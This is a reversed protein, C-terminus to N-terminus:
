GPPDALGALAQAMAAQLAQPSVPKHLVVHGSTRADRLRDAGTDGTILIVPLEDNFLTGLQEAVALGTEDGRLRYDCIALRPLVTLAMLQPQLDDMGAAAIVRLGWGTLLDAMASRIEADDDVGRVLDCQFLYYPKVRTRVLGRFLKELVKADDNVGRLLV